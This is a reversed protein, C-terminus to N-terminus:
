IQRVIIRNGEVRLVRIRSGGPILHGESIVDHKHGDIVAFGAPRLDSHAIGERGTLDPSVAPAKFDQGDTELSLSRGLRTKPFVKLWIWLSAALLLLVAIAAYFGFTQDYAFAFAIAIFLALVGVTGIIGGPLFIEAGIAILGALLFAVFMQIQSDQLFESM